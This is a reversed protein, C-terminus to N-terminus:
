TKSKCTTKWWTYFTVSRSSRISILADIFYLDVFCSHSCDEFALRFFAFLSSIMLVLLTLSSSFFYLFPLSYLRFYLLYPSLLLCATCLLFLNWELFDSRCLSRRWSSNEMKLSRSLYLPLTFGYVYWRETMLVLRLSSQSCKQLSISILAPRLTESQVNLVYIVAQPDLLECSRGHRWSLVHWHDLM